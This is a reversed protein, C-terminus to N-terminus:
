SASTLGSRGIGDNMHCGTRRNPAQQFVESTCDSTLIEAVKTRLIGEIAWYRDNQRRTISFESQASKELLNKLLRKPFGLKFLTALQEIKELKQPLSQM